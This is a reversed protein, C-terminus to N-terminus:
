VHKLSAHFNAIDWVVKELHHNTGVQRWTSLNGTSVNKDACNQIYEDGYSLNPKSYYRSTVVNHSLEHFQTFGYDKVNRGKIIFCFSISKAVIESTDPKDM